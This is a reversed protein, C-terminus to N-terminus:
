GPSTDYEEMELGEVFGPQPASLGNNFGANKPFGTFAQDFLEVTDKPSNM